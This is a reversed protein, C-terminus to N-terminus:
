VASMAMQAYRKTVSLRNSDNSARQTTDNRDIKAGNVHVNLSMRFTLYVQGITRVNCLQVVAWELRDAVVPTCARYNRTLFNVREQMTRQQDRDSCLVLVLVHEDGPDELEDDADGDSELAWGDPSISHGTFCCKQDLYDLVDAWGCIFYYAKKTATYEYRKDNRDPLEESCHQEARQVLWERSVAYGYYQIYPLRTSPPTQLSTTKQFGRPRLVEFVWPPDLSWMRFNIECARLSPKLKRPNGRILFDSSM